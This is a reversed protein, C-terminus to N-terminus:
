LSRLIPSYRLQKRKPLCSPIFVVGLHSQLLSRVTTPTLEARQSYCVDYRLLQPLSILPDVLMGFFSLAPFVRSASVMGMNESGFLSFAALPMLTNAVQFSKLIEIIRPSHLSVQGIIVFTAIGMNFRRLWRLQETRIGALKELFHKERGNIKVM